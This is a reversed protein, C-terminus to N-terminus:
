LGRIYRVIAFFERTLEDRDDHGVPYFHARYKQGRRRRRYENTVKNMGRKRGGKDFEIGRHCGACLASLHFLDKGKLAKLSYKRHHVQTAKRGCTRCTRKDRILVRERIDAWLDSKLYSAYSDFGMQRLLQDRSKYPAYPDYPPKKKKRLRNHKNNYKRHRKCYKKNKKCAAGCIACPRAPM